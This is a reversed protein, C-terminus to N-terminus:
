LAATVIADVHVAASDIIPYEDFTADYVLNLDTGGLLLAEAGREEVLSRGLELLRTREDDTPAGAIAMSVYDNHAQQLQNGEPVVTEIGALEGYLGTEMVIRTGLIAIRRIGAARLHTAM